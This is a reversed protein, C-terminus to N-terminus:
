AVEARKSLQPLFLPRISPPECALDAPNEGRAEPLKARPEKEPFSLNPKEDPERLKPPKPDECDTACPGRPLVPEHCDKPFEDPRDISAEARVEPFTIPAPQCANPLTLRPPPVFKDRPEALARRVSLWHRENSFELFEVKARFLAPNEDKRVLRSVSDFRCEAPKPNPEFRKELFEGPDLRNEDNGDPRDIPFKPPERKATEPKPPESKSCDDNPPDPNDLENMPDPADSIGFKSPPKRLTPVEINPPGPRRAAFASESATRNNTEPRPAFPNPWPSAAPLLASTAGPPNPPFKPKSANGTRGAQPGM